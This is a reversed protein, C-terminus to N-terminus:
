HRNKKNVKLQCVDEEDETSDKQETHDQQATATQRLFNSNKNKQIAETAKISTETTRAEDLATKLMLNPKTLLCRQLNLDRIRLRDLLFEALEQFKCYLTAKQLATIYDNISKGENQNQCHFEHLRVIKSLALAYHMRLANLITDWPVTQVAAPTVLAKATDFIESGYYSLSFTDSETTRSHRFTTPKWSVSLGFSIPIGINWPQTSHHPHLM